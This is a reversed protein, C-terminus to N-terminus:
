KSTTSDKDMDKDKSKGVIAEKASKLTNTVAATTKALVGPEDDKGKRNLHVVGVKGKTPEEEGAPTRYDVTEVKTEIGGEENVRESGQTNMSM